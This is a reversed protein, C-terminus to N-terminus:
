VLTLGARDALSKSQFCVHLPDSSIVLSEPSQESMELRVLHPYSRLSHKMKLLGELKGSNLTGKLNMQYYSVCTFTLYSQAKHLTTTKLSVTSVFLDLSGGTFHICEQTRELSACMITVTYLYQILRM